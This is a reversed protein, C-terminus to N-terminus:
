MEDETETETRPKSDPLPESFFTSKVKILMRTALDYRTLM